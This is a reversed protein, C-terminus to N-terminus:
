ILLSGTELYRDSSGAMKTTPSKPFRSTSIYSGTELNLWTHEVVPAKHRAESLPTISSTGHTSGPQKCDTACCLRSLKSQEDNRRAAQCCSMSCGGEGDLHPSVGALSNVAVTIVFGLIILLRMM